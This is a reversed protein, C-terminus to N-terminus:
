RKDAADGSLVGRNFPTSEGICVGRVGSRSEDIRDSDSDIFEGDIVNVNVAESVGDFVLVFVLTLALGESRADGGGICSSCSWSRADGSFGHEAMVVMEMSGIFVAFVAFFVFEAFEFCVIMPDIDSAGVSPLHSSSFNTSDSTLTRSLAVALLGPAMEM